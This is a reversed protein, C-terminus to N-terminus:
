WHTHKFPSKKNTCIDFTHHPTAQFNHKGKRGDNNARLAAHCSQTATRRHQRFPSFTREDLAQVVDGRVANSLSVEVTGQGNPM